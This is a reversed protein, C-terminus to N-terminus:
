TTVKKKQDAKKKPARQCFFGVGGRVIASKQIHNFFRGDLYFFLFIIPLKNLISIKIQHIKLNQESFGPIPKFIHHCIAM